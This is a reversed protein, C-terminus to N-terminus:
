NFEIKDQPLNLDTFFLKQIFEYKTNTGKNNATKFTIPDLVFLAYADAMEEKPSYGPWDYRFALPIPTWSIRDNIPCTWEGLGFNPDKYMVMYTYKDRNALNGPSIAKVKEWNNPELEWLGLEMWQIRLLHAVDEKRCPGFKLFSLDGEKEDKFDFYNHGMEHLFVFEREKPTLQYFDNTLRIEGGSGWPSSDAIIGNLSIVREIRSLALLHSPPLKSLLRELETLNERSFEKESEILKIKM